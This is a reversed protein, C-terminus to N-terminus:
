RRNTAARAAGPRGTSASARSAPPRLRALRAILVELVIPGPIDRRGRLDLDAEALLTIAKTIGGHGLRQAQTLAKKAPFTSGTIGLADAAAREDSIRAGDLRLMRGYHLQLTAMVQLPHREGSAVLRRLQGLARAVDGNDIADTLDWPASAGAAGLFPELQDTTVRAGEGYVAALVALIQDIRGLDEGLHEGLHMAARQELRVPADALRDVLWGQRAKGGPVASDIVEGCRKLADVLKKPVTGGGGVVILTTDPSPGALYDLLPEVEDAAFRGVDRLVVVRRSSFMPPTSASEVARAVDGEDGFLDVLGFALDEASAASHITKTVAADRLVVDEGRIFVVM